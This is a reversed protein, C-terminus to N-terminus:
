YRKGIKIIPDTKEFILKEIQEFNIYDNEDIRILRYNNLLCWEELLRDKLQKEQLQSNIDKFHWIGDYEFCIKLIDSYLDRTLSTNKFILRGGTKWRYEPYQTKFYDVISREKQSSFKLNKSQKEYYSETDYKKEKWANKISRSTQLKSEETRKRNKNACSKSCFHKRIPQNERHKVVFSKGCTKCLVIEEIIKGHLREERKVFKARCLEKNKLNKYAYGLHKWRHHNAKAQFTEFELGCEECKYM